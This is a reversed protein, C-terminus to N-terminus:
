LLTKVRCKQCFLFVEFLMLSMMLGVSKVYYSSIEVNKIHQNEIYLLLVNQCDNSDILALTLVITKIFQYFVIGVLSMREEDDDDKITHPKLYRCVM